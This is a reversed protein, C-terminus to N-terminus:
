LELGAASANAAFEFGDVRSAYTCWNIAKALFWVCVSMLHYDEFLQLYLRRNKSTEDGHIAKPYNPVVFKEHYEPLQAWHVRADLHHAAHYGVNFHIATGSLSLDTNAIDNRDRGNRGGHHIINAFALVVASLRHSFLILLMPVFDIYGLGYLVFGHGYTWLYQEVILRGLVKPGMKTCEILSNAQAMIEFTFLYYLPHVPKDPFSGGEFIYPSNWDEPAHHYSHHNKCHKIRFTLPAIADVMGFGINLLWNLVDSQFVPVHIHNHHIVNIMRLVIGMVLLSLIRDGISLLPWQLLIYSNAALCSLGVFLPIADVRYRLPWMGRGLPTLGLRETRKADM